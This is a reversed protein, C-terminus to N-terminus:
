TPLPSRRLLADLEADSAAEVTLMAAYPDGELALCHAFAPETSWGERKLQRVRRRLLAPGRELLRAMATLHRYAHQEDVPRAEAFIEIPFATTEFTAVYSPLESPRHRLSFGPRDGFHTRVTDVFANTDRLECIVDLDSGPVDLNVCVTSVLVPDFPGLVDLLNLEVVTAYAAQQRPTGQKLYSIDRWDM